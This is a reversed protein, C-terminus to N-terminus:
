FEGIYKGHLDVVEGKDNYHFIPKGGLRVRATELHAMQIFYLTCDPPVGYMQADFENDTIGTRLISFPYRGNVLTDHAGLDGSYLALRTMYDRYRIIPDKFDPISKRLAAAAMLGLGIVLLTKVTLRLIKM